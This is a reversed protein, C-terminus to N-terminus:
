LHWVHGCQDNVYKGCQPCAPLVTTQEDRDRVEDVIIRDISKGLGGRSPREDRTAGVLPVLVMTGAQQRMFDMRERLGVERCRGACAAAEDRTRYPSYCYGCIQTREGSFEVTLAQMARRRDIPRLATILTKLAEIIADTRDYTASM